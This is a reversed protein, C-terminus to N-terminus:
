PLYIIRQDNGNNWSLLAKNDCNGNNPFGYDLRLVRDNIRIQLTGESIWHCNVKKILPDVITLAVVTGNNYTTQSRGTIRYVDDRVLGTLMGEIQTVTKTGEYRYGRGNPFTVRGNNVEISWKHVPPVTLNRFIKTGEIHARNVYFRDFSLTVVSGPRRIPGTFHLIMKGRRVKGDRGRCSDGFDITVTKPYTSDNPTVTITACDGIRGRLEFFDPLFRRGETSASRGEVGFGGANGEEDAATFAIDEADDFSAEAQSSEDSLNAAEEETLAPSETFRNEKQCSALILTFFLIAIANLTIRNFSLTKM